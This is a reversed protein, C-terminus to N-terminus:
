LFMKIIKRFWWLVMVNHKKAYEKRYQKGFKYQKKLKDRHSKDKSNLASTENFIYHYNVNPVVILKNAAGIADLVFIADEQSILSTDFVLKNKRIFDTKFLYRWVFSKILAQSWFLKGFLGNLVRKRKYTLDSSYKSNSVFGSCIMDAGKGGYIMESYYNSDIVDDADMFHIYEGRAANIGDNRAASVGANQKTIISFRKDSKAFDALIKGSNDSSGDNVCIVEFDKFSQHQLSELCRVLYKEANYIPIIVSIKPM